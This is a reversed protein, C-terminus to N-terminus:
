LRGTSDAASRCCELYRFSTLDYSPLVMLWRQGEKAKGCGVVLGGVESAKMGHIRGVAIAVGVVMVVVIITQTQTQSRVNVKGRHLGQVFINGIGPAANEFQM